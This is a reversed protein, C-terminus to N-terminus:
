SQGPLTRSSWFTISRATMRARPPTSSNSRGTRSAGGTFRGAARSASSAAGSNRVSAWSRCRSRSFRKATNSLVWQFTLPAPPAASSKPTLAVVKSERIFAIPSFRGSHHLGSAHDYHTFALSEATAVVPRDAVRLVTLPPAIEAPPSLIQCPLLAEVAAVRSCASVLPGGPQM